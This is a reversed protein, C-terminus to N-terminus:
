DSIQDSPAPVFAEYIGEGIAAVIPFGLAVLFGYFLLTSGRFIAYICAIVLAYRVVFALWLKLGSGRSSQKLMREVMLESGRHLWRFNIYGALSGLAVGAGARWGVFGTAAATGILGLVVTARLIRPYAAEYFSDTSTESDGM